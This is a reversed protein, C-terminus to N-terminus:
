ASTAEALIKHIEAPVRIPDPNILSLKYSPLAEDPSCPGTVPLGSESLLWQVLRRPEVGADRLSRLSLSDSRKALRQGSDDILLPVHIWEPRPIGLADQLVAQPGASSHLDDGRLVETVGQHHDDLIVALHYSVQGDPSAIPFDGFEDAPNLTASGRYSDKVLVEGEPCDLRITPSRGAAARADEVSSFRGRCTGPYRDPREHQHPASLAERVERRTCVCPYAKGEALLRQVPKMLEEARDSQRLPEQDWNLGLWTLDEVCADIYEERARSTDLDEHRLVVRGNKSRSSM